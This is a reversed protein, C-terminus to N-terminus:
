GCLHRRAHPDLAYLYVDKVPAHVANDRYRQNQRTRGTTQGVCVWNAAQYCAGRFRDPQVFSELLHIPHRYRQQWDAAIRRVVRSLIHSALHPVRVWPLIVFRSNNAIFPLRQARQEASWGIWRDRPACQWAAAGFLLCALDVGTSSQILYGRNEGIPGRYGLYHHHVLYRQFTHYNPQRPGVVKIQLPSLSSLSAEVPEPPHLEFLDATAEVRRQTPVRRREPLVILRREHLKLLLSRAALDKLQGSPAYWQWCQALAVSLRWRSWLPNAAILEQIQSIERSGIRRGQVLENELV